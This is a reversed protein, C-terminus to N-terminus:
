KIQKVAEKVETVPYQCTKNWCVYITTKGKRLKDQLLPLKGESKGGMLLVQPYFYKDLEKRKTEWDDGLIAVEYPPNLFYTMLLAWNAYYPGGREMTGKVNNLMFRAKEIYESEDFYVGLLYLNLAMQSNSAPIVNDTTEMKRAILAPDLDSTYFFMRSEKDYFHDLTYNLLIRAKFLWEQDFTAQYLSIFAQITFAYDDLFGNISAKGNKFNRHLRGDKDMMHNTIFAANEMARDLFKQEDFVRYADVYGTLMLANWATLIKDDLPPRERSARAKLLRDNISKIKAALAKEDMGHASAFEKDSKLRYLINNGHEWNGKETVDYYDAALQTDPGLAKKFAAYTWVYFKGEEGESDADLSSYFGKGGNPLVPSTLERDVFELSQYVVNKYLPNRTVQWAYSYLSVLQGNDYLMKEFHPVKWYEDVSYRAFGGGAQDYIGGMAMRDLTITTAKLADDSKFYHHYSLLFRYGIPIPFKPAKQEGGWKYDFHRNWVTFIRKLTDKSFDEKDKSLTVLGMGRVGKTVADAQQRVKDPETKYVNYVNKLLQLWRDKPLYTVAVIPRGDPLAIANLPWGGQGTILQAADMYVQDIDPREERDVKVSVFYDNMTAAVDEDEFSEREMVHCWHCAAYGISVIILKDEKKAKELATKGWPYWDVPNHAHMLLYPSSEKSLHNTYKHKTKEHKTKEHKIKNEQNHEMKKGKEHAEPQRNLSGPFLFGNATVLMFATLAATLWIHKKKM